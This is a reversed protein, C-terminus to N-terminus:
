RRVCAPMWDFQESPRYIGGILIYTREYNRKQASTVHDHLLTFCSKWKEFPLILRLRRDRTHNTSFLRPFLTIFHLHIMSYTIHLNRKLLAVLTNSYIKPAFVLSKRSEDSPHVLSIDPLPHHFKPLIRLNLNEPVHPPQGLFLLLSQKQSEDISPSRAAKSPQGILIRVM